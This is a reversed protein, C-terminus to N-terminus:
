SSLEPFRGKLFGRLFRSIASGPPSPISVFFGAQAKRYQGACAPHPRITYRSPLICHLFRINHLAFVQPIVYWVEPRSVRYLDVNPDHLSVAFAYLHELTDYYAAFTAPQSLVEGDSFYRESDADLPCEGYM